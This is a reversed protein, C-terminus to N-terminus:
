SDLTVFYLPAKANSTHCTVARTFAPAFRIPSEGPIGDARLQFKV